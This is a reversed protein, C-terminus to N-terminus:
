RREHTRPGGQHSSMVVYGVALIGLLLVGVALIAFVVGGKSSGASPQALPAEQPPQLPGRQAGPPPLYSAVQDGSMMMTMGIRSPREPASPAPSSSLPSMRATGGGAGSSPAPGSPPFAQSGPPAAHGALAQPLAMTAGNYGPNQPAAAQPPTANLLTAASGLAASAPAVASPPSGYSSLRDSNVVLSSPPPAQAPVYPIRPLYTQCHPPGFPLLAQALETVSQFRDNPNKSLCRLLVTEFGPPLGQKYEAMPTPPSSFIQVSLMAVNSANFPVQGTSLEYLIVGLSWIDSRIDVYKAGRLQEPPMYLPSGLMSSTRTLKASSNSVKSIGFDLVKIIQAGTPLTTLFLNGPKLDRHIIGHSHAEAIAECAQLVYDVALPVPIAGHGELVHDLDEGNLLEMVMFYEGSPLTGVEYIRIAHESHLVSAARAEQQFRAVIEGVNAGAQLLFKIALPAGNTLDMVRVVYGVGGEGLLSEVRYRGAIVEGPEFKDSM